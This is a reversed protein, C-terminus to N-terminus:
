LYQNLSPQFIILVQPNYTFAQQLGFSHDAL